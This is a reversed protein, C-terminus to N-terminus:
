LEFVTTSREMSTSGISKKDYFSNRCDSRGLDIKNEMKEETQCTDDLRRDRCHMRDVSFVCTSRASGGVFDGESKDEASLHWQQYQNAM